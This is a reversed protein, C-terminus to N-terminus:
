GNPHLRQGKDLKRQCVECLLYVAETQEGTKPDSVRVPIEQPTGAADTVAVVALCGNCVFYNPM